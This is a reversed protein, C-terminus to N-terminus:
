ASGAHGSKGAGLMGYLGAAVVIVGGSITAWGPIDGFVLFGFLASSVLQVYMFPALLSAPAHHLALILMFHAVGAGAGMLAMLGWDAGSPAVWFFPLLATSALMPLLSAAMMLDMPAYSTSLKRVALQYLAFLAASLLPLLAAWHVMGGGPRIIVLAGVFGVVVAIWRHFGVREKLLPASLATVMLPTTMILAFAAALPLYALSWIIPFNALWIATVAAILLGHGGTRPWRLRGRAAMVVAVVLTQFFTRAWVLQAVHFDDILYKAIGDTAPLVCFAATVLLIGRLHYRGAEHNM